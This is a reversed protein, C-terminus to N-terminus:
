EKGPIQRRLLEKEAELKEIKNELLKIHLEQEKQLKEIELAKTREIAIKENDSSQLIANIIKTRSETESKPLMDYDDLIKKHMLRYETKSEIINKYLFSEVEDITKSDGGLYDILAQKAGPYNSLIKDLMDVGMASTMASYKSFTSESAGTMEAFKRQSVGNEKLYDVIAKQIPSEIVGM